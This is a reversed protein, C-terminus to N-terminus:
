FSINRRLSRIITESYGDFSEFEYPNEKEIETWTSNVVPSDKVKRRKAIRNRIDKRRDDM